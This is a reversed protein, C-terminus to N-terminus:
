EIKQKFDEISDSPFIEKRPIEYPNTGIETSVPNTTFAINFGLKKFLEINEEDYEGYPSAFAQNRGELNYLSAQLDKEVIPDEKGILYPTHDKERKHFNYTHSQFEFVDCTNKLDDLSFYQYESAQYDQDYKKIASTIIFSIANMDYKKLVPYVEIANDKFGDDFTLVVSKEPIELDGKIFYELEKATLTTYNEDHLLKMQAEFASKTIVTSLMEGNEDLHIDAVDDDAVVRHYMLVSIEEAVETPNFDRVDETWNQCANMGLTADKPFYDDSDLAQVFDDKYLSLIFTFALFFVVAFGVNFLIHSKM